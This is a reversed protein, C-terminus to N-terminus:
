PTAEKLRALAACFGMWAGNGANVVRYEEGRIVDVCCEARELMDAKLTEAAEVLGKVAEVDLAALVRTAHDANADAQAAEITPFAKKVAKAGLAPDGDYAFRDGDIEWISYFWGIGSSAEWLGAIDERRIFVLPKVIRTMDMM